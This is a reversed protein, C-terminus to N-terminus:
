LTKNFQEKLFFMKFCIKDITFQIIGHTNIYKSYIIMQNNKLNLIDATQKKNVIKSELASIVTSWTVSTPQEDLWSQLM